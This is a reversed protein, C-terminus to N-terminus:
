KLLTLHLLSKRKAHNQMGVRAAHAYSGSKGKSQNFIKLDAIKKVLRPGLKARDLTGCNLTYPDAPV